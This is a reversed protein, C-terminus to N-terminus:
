SVGGRAELSYSSRAVSDRDHLTQIPPEHAFLVQRPVRPECQGVPKPVHGDALGDCRQFRASSPPPRLARACPKSAESFVITGVSSAPPNHYERSVQRTCPATAQSPLSELQRRGPSLQDGRPSSQRGSTRPLRPSHSTGHIPRTAAVKTPKGAARM